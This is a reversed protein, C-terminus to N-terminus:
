YNELCFLHEYWDRITEITLGYIFVFLFCFVFFLFFWATFLIHILIKTM